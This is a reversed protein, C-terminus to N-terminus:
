NAFSYLINYNIFHGLQPLYFPNFFNYFPLNLIHLHIDFSFFFSFLPFFLPCHLSPFSTPTIFGPPIFFYNYVFNSIDSFNSTHSIHSIQFQFIHPIDTSIIPLSMHLFGRPYVNSYIFVLYVVYITVYYKKM